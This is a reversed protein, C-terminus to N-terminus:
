LDNWTAGWKTAMSNAVSNVQGNSLESDFLKLEGIHGNLGEGFNDHFLFRNPDVFSDVGVKALTDTATGNSVFLGSSNIRWLIIFITNATVTVTSSSLNGGANGHFLGVQGSNIHLQPKSADGTSGFALIQQLGFLSSPTKLAVLLTMNSTGSLLSSNAFILQGTNSDDGLVGPLSGFINSELKPKRAGNSQNCDNGNGSVDEWCGVSDGANSPTSCGSDQFLSSSVTADLRLIASPKIPIFQKVSGLLLNPM